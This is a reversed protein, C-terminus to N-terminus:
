CPKAHRTFSLASWSRVSNIMGTIKDSGEKPPNIKLNLRNLAGDGLYQELLTDLEKEFNNTSDDM